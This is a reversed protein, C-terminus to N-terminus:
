LKMIWISEKYAHTDVMHEVETTSLSVVDQQKRMRSVVGGFLQFVYGSTSRKKDANRAWNSDM